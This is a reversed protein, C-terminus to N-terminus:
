NNSVGHIRHEGSTCIFFPSNKLDELTCEHRGTIDIYSANITLKVIRSKLNFENIKNEIQVRRPMKGIAFGRGDNGYIPNLYETLKDRIYRRLEFDDDGLGQKMWIDTSVAVKIPEIIHVKSYPVTLECHERIHEDIKAEISHFAQNGELISEMLVVITLEGDARKGTVSEGAVCVVNKIHESLSKIEKEYDKATILRHRNSLTNTARVLASDIDELDCGGVSPRINNVQEIFRVNSLLDTISGAELNAKKGACCYVKAFFGVDNVVKPIKVHVGDGFIVEGNVRDLMYHRDMSNSLFFNDVEKWKIFISQPNGWVDNEIQIETPRENLYEDIEEARINDKENVWIEADYIGEFGLNYHMDNKIENLYYNERPHTDLNIVETVNLKIDNIRPYIRVTEDELTKDIIRLYFREEGEYEYRGMDEPPIFRIIGSKSLGLTDDEVVFRKFGNSTSYEFIYNGPNAAAHEEIDFYIGVPGEEPKNKFGLLLADESDPAKIFAEIKDDEMMQKNLSYRKVGTLREIKEPKVFRGEYSYSVNLNKIVPYHHVCPIFYCNDSRTIRIRIGRSNLAAETSLNIDPPIIFSFEYKGDKTNAFLRRVDKDCEVRRWTNGNYYEISIEDIYAHALEGAVLRVPKRKIIKLSTDEEEAGLRVMYEHFEAEFSVTLRAGVKSFYEVHGFYFEQFLSLTNGFPEFEKVDFDETGNGAFEVPVREGESSFGIDTLGITNKVPKNAEIALVSYEKDRTVKDSKEKKKLIILDDKVELSEVKKFEGSTYYSIEYDGNKIDEILQENGSLKLYINQDEVDFIHSHFLILANRSINGTVYNFFTFPELVPEYDEDEESVIDTAPIIEPILEPRPIVGLLPVVAGTEKDSMFIRDIKSNTVYLAQKTEFVIPTEGYEALLKVGKPIEVGSISNRILNFGVITSSPTAPLLSIGVLNALQIQCRDLVKNYSVLNDFMQKAYLIGLTMGIDPDDLDPKWEPTYNKALELIRYEIDARERKDLKYCSTKM